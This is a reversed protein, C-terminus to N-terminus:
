SGAALRARVAQLFAARESPAGVHGALRECFEDPTRAETAAKQLLVKAIPGIHRALLARIAEFQQSDPAVLPKRAV